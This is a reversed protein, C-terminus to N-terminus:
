LMLINSIDNWYKKFFFKARLPSIGREIFDEEILLKISDFKSVGLEILINYFDNFNNTILWNNLDLKYNKKKKHNNVIGLNM